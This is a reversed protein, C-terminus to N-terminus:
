DNALTFKNKEQSLRLSYAIAEVQRLFNRKDKTPAYVCGDVVIVRNDSEDHVTLSVFPGGMFDNEFKCLGRIEVAYNDNFHFEQFVADLVRETVMYSSDAVNESYMISDRMGLLYDRTFTSDSVYPFTYAVISQIVEPTSQYLMWMLNDTERVVKYGLPIDMEIGFRDKLLSGIEKERFRANDMQLRDRESKLIYEVIQESNSNFIDIFEETNKAFVNIVSQQRAWVDTKLEVKSLGLTPSIRTYIINRNTKFVDKFANTPVNIVSFIPEEQPLGAQPRMLVQRMAEGAQGGWTEEPTVIILDGPRGSIKTRSVIDNRCSVFIIACLFVMGFYSVRQMISKQTDVCLFGAM